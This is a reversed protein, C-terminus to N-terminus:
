RLHRRLRAKLTLGSFLPNFGTFTRRADVAIKSQADAGFIPSQFQHWQYHQGPGIAKLTLGSFLPNFGCGLGSTLM